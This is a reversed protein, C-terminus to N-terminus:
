RRRHVSRFSSPTEGFAGKSAASLHSLHKYGCQVAIDTLEMDTEVLLEKVRGLRVRRIEEGPSRGLLARFRRELLSRSIDAAEAVEDVTVNKGSGARARLFQVSKTVQANDFTSLETSRRYRLITRRVICILSMKRPTNPSSFIGPALASARM